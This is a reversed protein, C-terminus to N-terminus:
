DGTAQLLDLLRPLVAKPLFDKRRQRQKELVTAKLAEDTALRQALAAVEALDDKEHFMLGAAGLTEPIASSRFALIPIDFWM